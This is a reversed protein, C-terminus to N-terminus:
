MMSVPMRNECLANPPRALAPNSATVGPPPAASQL